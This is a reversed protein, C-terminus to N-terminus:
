MTGTGILGEILTLSSPQCYNGTLPWLGLLENHRKKFESAELYMKEFTENEEM